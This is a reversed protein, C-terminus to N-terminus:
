ETNHQQNHLCQNYFTNYSIQLNDITQNQPAYTDIYVTLTPKKQSLYDIFFALFIVQVNSGAKKLIHYIGADFIFNNNHMSNIKGQPFVLVLNKFNKLLGVTYDITQIISKSNKKVSFGGCYNFYWHKKLHQYLMMFYFNRKFIKQNVYLAWFGDWWSIHNAVLLIPMNKDNFQGVINVGAFHKKIQRNTYWKFFGFIIKHHKAKLIM